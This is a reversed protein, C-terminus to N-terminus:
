STLIDSEPRALWEAFTQANRDRESLIPDDLPWSVALDKDNWVISSEGKGNWPVTFHYNLETGDELACLGFAFGPSLYAQLRNDRSLEMGLWKGRTPSNKRIDVGVIFAKGHNIRVLKGLPLDYQFHLGRLVGKRSFSINEQVFAVPVGQAAFKDRHYLEAFFGRADELKELTITYLGALETEQIIM